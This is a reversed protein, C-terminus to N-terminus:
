QVAVTQDIQPPDPTSVFLGGNRIDRDFVKKLEASSKFVVQFRDGAPRPPEHRNPAPAVIQRERSSAGSRSLVNDILEEPALFRVGMGTARLSQLAPAVKAAHAVVGEVVVSERSDMLEVRVRQGVPLPTSTAIFMGTSSLNHSYGSLAESEGLKWFRIQMRRARRRDHRKEM